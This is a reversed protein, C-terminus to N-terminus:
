HLPSLTLVHEAPGPLFPLPEGHVWAEHGATFYPSLPHGSQGGPMHFYGNAEDGPSVAFRESAGHARQQVRPMHDGGPLPGNHAVLWPELFELANVLPHEIEVDNFRGWTCASLPDRRCSAIADDAINVFLDDWSAHRAPLLHAPRETVLRWVPGEAQNAGALGIPGSFDGCGSLLHALLEDHVRRRFERTMRYGIADISARGDWGNLIDRLESRLANGAVADDTLASLLLDRWREQLLARDDLQIALMDSLGARPRSALGDRIQRARAGLVFGNTGMHTLAEGEIVRANASWVLGTGPDIVRPYAEAALWGQWGRTGDAWSTPLAPDYGVRRPIRGMITWGISGAADAVMFNQPPIGISPAIQIAEEVDRASELELMRLNVAGPSHALWRLALLRGRHDEGVVPGWRTWRFTAAEPDAGKVEIVEDYEEFPEYGDPTLYADPNRPDRELVILDSWDGRSNTFGWAISTNSGAVVFPTGPLTVGSLDLSEGGGAPSEVILRARYWINPVDLALHMDNAVIARGTESREGAVAWANSGNVPADTYITVMSATIRGPRRTSARLDCVAPSPVPPVEWADGMMPADWENGEAFLFDRIGESLGDHIEAYGSERSADDDTLQFFMAFNGLASDEPRWPEPDTQLILYEFPVVPLAALGANVGDAYAQLLAREATSTDAIVERALARLRHRRREQDVRVAVGGLLAALEGAASRRMLDMQFFREQGHVFGTARAVDVRSRGRITPVGYVDREITVPASLAAIGIEGDLDPLSGRITLYAALLTALIVVVGAALILAIRKM